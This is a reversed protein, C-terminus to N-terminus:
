QYLREEYFADIGNGAFIDSPSVGFSDRFTRSLHPADSFNAIASAATMSSGKAILYCVQMLRHWKRYSGISVGTDRKFLQMLHVKSLGVTETLQPVQQQDIPLTQILSMVKQVRHDPETYKQTSTQPSKLITEFLIQKLVDLPFRQQLIDKFLQSYNKENKIDIFHGQDTKKMKQEIAWNAYSGPKLLLCAFHVDQNYKSIHPFDSPWLVSRHRLWHQEDDICIDFPETLSMVFVPMPFQHWRVPKLGGIYLSYHNWLCLLPKVPRQM